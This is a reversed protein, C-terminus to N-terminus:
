EMVIENLAEYFANRKTYLLYQEYRNIEYVLTQWTINMVTMDDLYGVIPILDPIFDLPLVAYTLAGVITALTTKSLKFAGKISDKVMNALLNVEVALEGVYPVKEIKKVFKICQDTFTNLECADQLYADVQDNCYSNKLEVLQHNDMKRLLTKYQEVLDKEM